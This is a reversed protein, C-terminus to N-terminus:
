SKRGKVARFYIICNVASNFIHYVSSVELLRCVSVVM